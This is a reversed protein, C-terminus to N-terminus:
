ELVYFDTEWKTQGTFLEKTTLLTYGADELEAGSLGYSGETTIAICTYVHNHIKDRIEQYYEINKKILIDGNPFLVPWIKSNQFNKLNRKSNFQAQGYDTTEINRDLCYISLHAPVLIPGSSYEDFLDYASKWTRQRFELKKISEINIILPKEKYVSLLMALIILIGGVSSIIWKEKRKVQYIMFNLSVIGAMIIYPYWLHYYYINTAGKNQAIYIVLPLTFFIQCFEYSFLELISRKKYAMFINIIIGAFAAASIFSYYWRSIDKIQNLSYLLDNTTTQGQAMPLTEIFYLPFVTQVLIVSGGGVLIGYLCFKLIDIKTRAFYYIAFGFVVFAFYQKIYFELVIVIVYLLPRFKGKKEDKITARMLLLAFMMGWQDPFAGGCATSRWFCGYFQISGFICLLHNCTRDYAIQYFCIVGIIEILLTIMECIQLANLSTFSFIRVFPSMLLSPLFGYMNTAVPIPSETMSKAYLNIGQSFKYAFVVMNMERFEKPIDCSIVIYIKSLVCGVLLLLLMSYVVCYIFKSIKNYLITDM